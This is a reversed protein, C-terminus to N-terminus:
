RGSGGAMPTLVLTAQQLLDSVQDPVHVGLLVVLVALPAAAAVSLWRV